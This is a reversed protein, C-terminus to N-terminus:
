STKLKFRILYLQLLPDETILALKSNLIQTVLHLYSQIFFFSHFICTIEHQVLTIHIIIEFCSIIM